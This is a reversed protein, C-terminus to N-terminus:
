SLWFVKLMNDWENIKESKMMEELVKEKGESWKWEDFDIFQIKKEDEDWMINPSKFNELIFKSNEIDLSDMDSLNWLDLKLDMTWNSLNLNKEIWSLFMRLLIYKSHANKLKSLFEPNMRENDSFKSLDKWPVRRQITLLKLSRFQVDKMFWKWDTKKDLSEWLVFWSSPILDSM